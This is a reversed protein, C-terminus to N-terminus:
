RPLVPDTPATPSPRPKGKKRSRLGVKGMLKRLGEKARGLMVHRRAVATSPEDPVVKELLKLHREASEQDGIAVFYAVLVAHFNEFETMHFLRRDPYM